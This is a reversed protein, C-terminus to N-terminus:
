ERKMGTLEIVRKRREADRAVYDAAAKADGAVTTMGLGELKQKVDPRGLTEHVAENLRRLIEPPTGTPAILANFANAVYGKLDTQEAVTAVDPLQSFRGPGGSAIAKLKGDKVLAVAASASILGTAVSGGIINTVAPVDGQFPVHVMQVQALSALNEMDLHGPTGIGASAYTLEGPKSRAFELLEKMNSQKLDARAVFLLDLSSLVAIVTLDRSPSYSLKPDLFPIITMSGTATVGLTYGDPKAKAVLDTGIAGGAGTRNEVFFPQKLIRSLGEAVLRAVVDTPGGAAFPVILKVPKDPYDQAAAPGIGLGALFLAAAVASVTDRRSIM